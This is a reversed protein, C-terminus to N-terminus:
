LKQCIEAEHVSSWFQWHYCLRPVRVETQHGEQMWRHTWRTFMVGSGAVGAGATRVGHAGPFEPLYAPHINIIRGEYALLTPGVIKMYRGSLFLDIQHEELEVLAAESVTKGWVGQTRNLKDARESCMPAVITQFSLSWQFGKPLWRFIQAMRPLGSNKWKIIVSENEKKVIRGIEPSNM